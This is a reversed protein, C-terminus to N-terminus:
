LMTLGLWSAILAPKDEGEIEVTVDLRYLWEGARKETVEALTVHGRVRRGARVPNLFRVKETGYNLTMRAGDIMPFGCTMLMRSLLSLTLFGHAVTGGLPTQAAREADVYIFQHDETVDAFADIRGQDVVIWESVGIPQGAMARLRDITVTTM